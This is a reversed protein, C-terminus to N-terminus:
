GALDALTRSFYRRYLTLEAGGIAPALAGLHGPLVQPPVYSAIPLLRLEAELREVLQMVIAPPLISDVLVLGSEIVTMTNFVVKALAKASDALWQDLAPGFDQWPWSAPDRTDVAFGTAVLRNELATVSAIFHAVQPGDAGDVLMSGLNASNDSPGEWLTGEGVIGAAIYRGILFYIFNAPRPKPFAILEAWCAANGDNFLTVAIGMRQKLAAAIDLQLWHEKQDEPAVVLALNGAINTPLAVGIDTLRARLSDPLTALVEDTMAVIDDVIATADPFDHDRHRRALVQGQLNLLLVDVHRWGIEVGVSFAGEPNLSIPTAPQGRRGRLVEGRTILGLGDLDILIASVTQPALGSLRAIDANSVGPNFGIITLVARENARRLGQHQLGRGGADFADRVPETTM